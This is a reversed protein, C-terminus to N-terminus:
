RSEGPRTPAASRPEGPVRAAAEPRADDLWASREAASPTPAAIRHPVFRAGYDTIWGDSERIGVGAARGDVVWSGLVAKNGDFDPLPCWQQYLWGEAGYDGPQEHEIGAAHIRINDGERGHLPKAVWETLPGPDDLYAPLLCEHSPYLHWLAALLAKNSLLVKWVPEIWTTSLAGRPRAEVHAGFPEALMQEWPYLKFCARLPADGHGVFCSRESDWGIEGVTISDTALGAQDATDRLYTVTMLEEGTPEDAHHAFVVPAPPLKMRNSRWALVLREHLSNWQDLDPNTDQLWFWQAVSSELLGTPTDANYELLKAHGVGDYRLDFRGYISPTGATLSERALELAGPPLGLTGMEGTALFRAAELCMQHLQETVQELYDVEGSTLEYCAEEFWYPSPDRDPAYTEPFILGQGMVTKRWGPRPTAPLRRM